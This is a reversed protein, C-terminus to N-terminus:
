SHVVTLRSACAVYSAGMRHCLISALEVPPRLFEFFCLGAGQMSSHTRKVTIDQVSLLTQLLSCSFVCIPFELNLSFTLSTIFFSFIHKGNQQPDM